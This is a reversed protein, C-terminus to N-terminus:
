SHRRQQRGSSFSGRSRRRGNRNGSSKKNSSNKVVEINSEDIRRIQTNFHYSFLLKMMQEKSLDQMYHAFHEFSDDINFAHDRDVIAVKLGDMKKLENKIKAKKIETPHPLAFATMKHNTLSEIHKKRGIEGPTMFSIAQGDLGARGTRGIRHIYSESQRPLGMNIVHTLNSVDIGRAAVDTCILISSRKQSFRKMAADRQTQNLEGHLAVVSIGQLLLRESLEKTELRTECFIMGYFDPTVDIFRQLADPFHRKRLVCYYQKIKSGGMMRESGTVVKPKSFKNEILKIIPEPMTASFMWMRKTSQLSDIILQVDEIFGMNLMEDAEDIILQQCNSLEIKKQKLLDIIRGPTGVVIQPRGKSLASLQKDYPVGGYITTSNLPLYAALKEVERHIQRALERTPALILAQIHTAEFDIQELLPILFAATKGTGTQAQGVFDGQWSNLVPITKTQIETPETFGMIDIAQKIPDSINFQTFSM